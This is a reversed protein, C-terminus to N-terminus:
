IVSKRYINFIDIQEKEFLDELADTGNKEAYICEQESIPVGLLWAVKRDDLNITELQGEWIFPPVFMIHKMDINPLYMDVVHHFIAGPHCKYNSNIICFSCTALINIFVVERADCVGLLEVNLPVGETRYGSSYEATGITSYFNVGDEPVDELCLMDISSKRDDDWNRSFKPQGGLIDVIYKVIRKRQEIIKM